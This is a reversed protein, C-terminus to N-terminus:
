CGQRRATVPIMSAGGLFAVLPMGVEVFQRAPTFDDPDVTPLNEDSLFLLADSLLELVHFYHFIGNLLTLKERDYTTIEVSYFHDLATRLCEELSELRSSPSLSDEGTDANFNELERILRNTKDILSMIWESPSYNYGEGKDWMFRFIKRASAVHKTLDGYQSERLGFEKLLAEFQEVSNFYNAQRNQFEQSNFLKEQHVSRFHAVYIATIPGALGMIFLPVAFHQVFFNLGSASIDSSLSDRELWALLVVLLLGSLTPGWLCLKFAGSQGLTDEEGQLMSALLSFLKAIWYFPNIVSGISPM